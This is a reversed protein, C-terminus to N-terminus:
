RDNQLGAIDQWTMATKKKDPYNCPIFFNAKFGYKDLIPKATTSQSKWADGFTIIAVKNNNNNDLGTDNFTTRKNGESLPLSGHHEPQSPLYPFQGYVIIPWFESLPFVLLVAITSISIAILVKTNLNHGM